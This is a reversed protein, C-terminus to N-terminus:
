YARNHLLIEWYATFDDEWYSIVNYGMIFSFWYRRILYSIANWYIASELLIGMHHYTHLIVEGILHYITTDM